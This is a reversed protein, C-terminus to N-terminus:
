FIGPNFLFSKIVVEKEQNDSPAVGQNLWMNIHVREDGTLPPLSSGQYLWDMVINNVPPNEYHGHAFLYYIYTPQWDFRSTSYTGASMDIDFPLTNGTLYYPQCTFGANDADEVSWRSFEIDIERTDNEYTFFGLVINKDINDDFQSKGFWIYEGYGLSQDLYIEPCYWKNDHKIIKLHLDGNADVWVNQTSSSFYNPGPGQKIDGTDRVTWTYGSWNITRAMLDPSFGLSMTLTILIKLTKM